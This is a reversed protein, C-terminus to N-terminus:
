LSIMTFAESFCPPPPPRVSLVEKCGRLPLTERQGERRGGWHEAGPLQVFRDIWDANVLYRRQASDPEM